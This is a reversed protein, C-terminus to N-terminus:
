AVLREQHGGVAFAVEEVGAVGGELDGRTQVQGGALTGGM